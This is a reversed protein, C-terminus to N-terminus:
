APSNEETIEMVFDIAQSPHALRPSYIHAIPEPKADPVVVFVKANEPLHVNPPLKIKGQDVIGEFTQVSM